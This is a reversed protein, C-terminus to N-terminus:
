KEMNQMHGSPRTAAKNMNHKRGKQSQAHESMNTRVCKRAYFVSTPTVVVGLSNNVVVGLSNNDGRGSDEVCCHTSLWEEGSTGKRKKKEEKRRSVMTRSWM